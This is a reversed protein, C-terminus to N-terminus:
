RPFLGNKKLPLNLASSWSESFTIIQHYLRISVYASLSYMHLYISPPFKLLISEEIYNWKVSTDGHHLLLPRTKCILFTLSPSVLLKLIRSELDPCCVVERGHRMFTRSKRTIWKMAHMVRPATGLCVSSIRGLSHLGRLFRKVERPGESPGDAPHNKQIGHHPSQTDLCHSDLPFLAASGGGASVAKSGLSPIRCLDAQLTCGMSAFLVFIQLVM